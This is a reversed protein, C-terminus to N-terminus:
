CMGGTKRERIEPNRIKVGYELIPAEAVVVSNGICSGGQVMTPKTFKQTATRLTSRQPPSKPQSAM